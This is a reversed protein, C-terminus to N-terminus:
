VIEEKTPNTYQDFYMYVYKMYRQMVEQDLNARKIDQWLQHGALVDLITEKTANHELAYKALSQSFAMIENKDSFYGKMDGPNPLNYIGSKNRDFQQVHVSEHELMEKFLGPHPPFSLLMRKQVDGNREIQDVVMSVRNKHKNFFGFFPTMGPPPATETDVENLTEKFTRYDYFDVDYKDGVAILDELRITDGGISQLEAIMEDYNNEILVKETIYQKYNKIKKM